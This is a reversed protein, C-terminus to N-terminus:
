KEEKELKKKEIEKKVLEVLKDEGVKVLDDLHPKLMDRILDDIKNDSEDVLKDIPKVLVKVLMGIVGAGLLVLAIELLGIDM